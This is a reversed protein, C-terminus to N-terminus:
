PIAEMLFGLYAIYLHCLQPHDSTQIHVHHLHNSSSSHQTHPISSPQLPLCPIFPNQTRPIIPKLITASNFLHWTHPTSAPQTLLSPHLTYPMAASHIEPTLPSPQYPPTESKLIAKSLHQTHPQWWCLWGEEVWKHKIWLIRAFFNVCHGIYWNQTTIASTHYCEKLISKITIQPATQYTRSNSQSEYYSLPIQCYLAVKVLSCIWVPILM